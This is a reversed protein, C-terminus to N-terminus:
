ATKVAKFKWTGGDLSYPASWGGGAPLSAAATNPVVTVTSDYNSLISVTNNLGAEAVQLARDGSRDRAFSTENSTMYTVVGATTITLAGMIVIAMILSQGLECALRRALAIRVSHCNRPAHM